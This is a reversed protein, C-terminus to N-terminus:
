LFLETNTEYTKNNWPFSEEFKGKINFLDSHSNHGFVSNKRIRIKGCESQIRLSVFINFKIVNLNFSHPSSYTCDM